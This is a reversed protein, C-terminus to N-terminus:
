NYFIQFIQQKIIGLNNNEPKQQVKFYNLSTYFM